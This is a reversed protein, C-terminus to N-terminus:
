LSRADAGTGDRGARVPPDRRGLRGRDAARHDSRRRPDGAARGTAPDNLVVVRASRRCGSARQQDRVRGGVQHRAPRGGGDADAGRLHAPMAHAFSGTPGRISASRRRCSPTRRRARDDDARGAGPARRAAPMAALVDAASLYRLPPADAPAMAAALRRPASSPHGRRHAASGDRMAGMSTSCLRSLRLSSRSAITRYSASAAISFSGRRASANWRIAPLSRRWASM